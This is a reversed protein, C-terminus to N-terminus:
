DYTRYSIGNTTYVKNNLFRYISHLVERDVKDFNIIISGTFTNNEM